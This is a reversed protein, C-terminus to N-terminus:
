EFDWLWAFAIINKMDLGGGEDSDSGGFNFESLINIEGNKSKIAIPPHKEPLDYLDIFGDKWKLTKFFEDRTM